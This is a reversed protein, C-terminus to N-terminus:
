EIKKKRKRRRKKKTRKERERWTAHIKIYTTIFYSGCVARM